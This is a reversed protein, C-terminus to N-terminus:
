TVVCGPATVKSVKQDIDIQRSFNPLASWSRSWTDIYPITFSRRGTGTNRQGVLLAIRGYRSYNYLNRCRWYDEFVLVNGAATLLDIAEQHNKAFRQVFDYSSVRRERRILIDGYADKRFPRIEPPEAKDRDTADNGESM